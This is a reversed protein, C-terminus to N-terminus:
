EMTNSSGLLLGDWEISSLKEADERKMAAIEMEEKVGDVVRSKSKKRLPAKIDADTWLYIWFREALRTWITKIQCLLCVM